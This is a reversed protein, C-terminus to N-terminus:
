AHDGGITREDRWCRISYLWSYTTCLLTLRGPARGTAPAALPVGPRVTVAMILRFSFDHDDQRRRDHCKPRIQGDRASLEPARALAVIGAIRRRGNPWPDGCDHRRAILGVADSRADPRQERLVVRTLERDYEDVVLAAIAGCVNRATGGLGETAAVLEVKNGTGCRGGAPGALQPRLLLADAAGVFEFRGIEQQGVGVNHVGGVRQAPEYCM